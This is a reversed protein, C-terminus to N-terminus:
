PILVRVRGALLEGCGAQIGRRMNRVGRSRPCGMALEERARVPRPACLAQVQEGSIPSRDVTFKASLRLRVGVPAVLRSRHSARDFSVSIGEVNGREWPPGSGHTSPRILPLSGM